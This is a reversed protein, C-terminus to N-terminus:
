HNNVIISIYCVLINRGSFISFQELKHRLDSYTGECGDRQLSEQLARAAQDLIIRQVVSLKSIDWVDDYVTEIASQLSESEFIEFFLKKGKSMAIKLAFEVFFDHPIIEKMTVVDQNMLKNVLNTGLYIYPEFLPLKEIVSTRSYPRIAAQAVNQISVLTLDSLDKLPYQIKQCPIILSETLELCPCNEKVCQFVKCIVQAQLNSSYLSSFRTHQMLIVVAKTDSSVEVLVKVEDRSRWFVGTKWLLCKRQIAPIEKQPEKVLASTFALRLLLVQLFRSDFFQHSKKCQLIWGCDINDMEQTLSDHGQAILGPFLYYRERSTSSYQESIYHLLEQDSIEHCFELHTLFGILVESNYQPFHTKLKSLPVVGTSSALFKHDPFSEPAFITGIVNSLITNKDFVIWSNEAESPHKLFLIHGRDNLEMCIKYLAGLGRPIYRTAMDNSAIKINEHVSGLKGFTFKIKSLYVYFWHANFTINEKTRLKSCCLSLHHQLETMGASKTHQCDMPIFEIFELNVFPYSLCMKAFNDRFFTTKLVDIHSGVVIINPKRDVLTCQNELFSFWYFMSQRIRDYNSDGLNVVLLFISTSSQQVAIQLLAAHSSYFERQGAFDHFTVPGFHKSDFDYPIVGTTKPSVNSIKKSWFLYSIDQLAAILTSKGVSPDGIVFIKVPPKLPESTGLEKHHSKYLTDIKTGYSILLQRALPDSTTEFPINGCANSINPNCNAESLLFEMIVPANVICALHLATDGESNKDDPNWTTHQLLTQLLEVTEGECEKATSEILMFVERSSTVANCKTLEKIIKIDETYAIPAEGEHNKSDPNSKLDSLLYHVLEYMDLLCALHLMSDGSSLLEHPNWAMKEVALRLIAVIRDPTINRRTILYFLDDSQLIAGYRILEQMIDPDKCLQFPTKEANNEKNPDCRAESLLIRVIKLIDHECALHLATNGNGTRDDPKWTGNKLSKLFIDANCSANCVLTFTIDSNTIADHTILVEITNLDSKPTVQIPTKGEADQINPDCKYMDLLYDVMHCSGHKCTLHLISDGDSTKFNPNVRVLSEILKLRLDRDEQKLWFTVLQSLVTAANEVLLKTVEYNVTLEIATKEDSNKLDPYCHKEVLLCRVVDCTDLVCAIHLATDGETTKRNPDGLTIIEAVKPLGFQKAWRKVDITTFKAEYQILQSIISLNNTLQIPAEGSNNLINPNSRMNSLLFEVISLRNARCALHLATDGDNNQVDCNWQRNNMSCQLCLLTEQDKFEGKSIWRFVDDISISQSFTPTPISTLCDSLIHRELNNYEFEKGCKLPCSILRKPCQKSQHKPISSRRFGGSCYNCKIAAFQCGNLQTSPSPNSNIHKDIDGLEGKWECGKTRNTCYVLLQYLSQRLGKNSHLEYQSSNCLPCPKNNLEIQHICFSCFSKGCCSAAYPERLILLCVPCNTQFAAPVEKVFDCEFGTDKSQVTSKQLKQAEIFSKHAERFQKQLNHPKIHTLLHFFLEKRPVRKECGVIANYPCNVVTFPCDIAIHNDLNHRQILRGCQNPCMIPFSGPCTPLHNVEVDEYNSTFNNCYPCTYYKKQGVLQLESDATLVTEFEYKECHPCPNDGNQIESICRSCFMAECCSVSHPNSMHETCKFCYLQSEDGYAQTCTQLEQIHGITQDVTISDHNTSLKDDTLTQTNHTHSHQEQVLDVTNRNVNIQKEPDNDDRDTSPADDTM